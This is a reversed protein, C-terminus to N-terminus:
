VKVFIKRQYMWYCLSWLVALVIAYPLLAETVGHPVPVNYM